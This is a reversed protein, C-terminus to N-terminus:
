RLGRLFEGIEMRKRAPAQVSKLMLCGDNLAIKAWKRGDTLVTGPVYNHDVIEAEADFIKMVLAEPQGPFLLEAWATPYPSLGRVKNLVDVVSGTFSLECTEKFLKPAIRLPAKSDILTSQEIPEINGKDILDVTRRVLGAGLLMLKDHVTGANDTPEISIREQLILSGTDIEHTLFFTTVGTEEEGNIVAWNIPAAGRYQPLLSAHLNFTGKSPMSWVVEPLMRFAVVIQLDAKLARLEQLFSEDKLKEPQLVPICKETAYQKVPSSQLKHGRGAPKDPMTIVGVVEYGNEVLVKLSEVAFEPTGMFVIRM